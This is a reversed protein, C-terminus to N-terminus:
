TSYIALCRQVVDQWGFHQLVRKRGAAGMAQAEQPHDRLWCLREGIAAPNNPPVVFGTVGHEVTEPMSAVDTCVTPIGCAMGELLTQGLLEPLRTEHGYVNRYVSPLVVCLARRYAQVLAADDFNHQFTVNKGSALSLLKTMYRQDGPHGVVELAFGEPLGEILYNLGKHPQLRGVFLVTKGREGSPAPSFRETDVGGGIIHARSYQRHGLVSKSYESIHLHGHFWNDTSWYASVDWGGGGLDTV